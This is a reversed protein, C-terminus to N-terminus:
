EVSQSYKEFDELLDEVLELLEVQDLHNSSNNNNGRVALVPSDYGLCNSLALKIQFIRDDEDALNLYSECENTFQELLDGLLEKVRKVSDYNHNLFQVFLSQSEDEDDGWTELWDSDINEVYLNVCDLGYKFFDEELQHAEALAEDFRQNQLKITIEKHTFM